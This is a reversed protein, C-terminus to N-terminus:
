SKAVYLKVNLMIYGFQIHCLRLNVKDRKYDLKNRLYHVEEKNKDLDNHLKEIEKEKLKVKESNEALEKIAEVITDQDKGVLSLM